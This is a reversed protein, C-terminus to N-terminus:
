AVTTQGRNTGQIVFVEDADQQAPLRKRQEKRGPRQISSATSVRRLLGFDPKARLQWRTCIRPLCGIGHSNLSGSVVATAPTLGILGHIIDSPQYSSALQWVALFDCGLLSASRGLNRRSGDGAAHPLQSRSSLPLQGM